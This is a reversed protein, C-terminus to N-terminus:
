NSLVSSIRPGQLLLLDTSSHSSRACSLSSVWRSPAAAVCACATPHWCSPDYLHNHSIQLAWPKTSHMMQMDAQRYM